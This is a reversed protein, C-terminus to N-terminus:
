RAGALAPTRRGSCIPAPSTMHICMRSETPRSPRAGAAAAVASLMPRLIEFLRPKDALYFHGGRLTRVSFEASTRARWQWLDAESVIPDDSGGLVHIPVPLPTIDSDDDTM